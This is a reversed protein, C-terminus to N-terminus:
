NLCRLEIWNLKLRFGLQWFINLQHLFWIALTKVYGLFNWGVFLIRPSLCLFSFFLRYFWNLIILSICVIHMQDVIWDETASDVGIFLSPWRVKAAQNFLFPELTLSYSIFISNSNHLFTFLSLFLYRSLLFPAKAVVIAYFVM